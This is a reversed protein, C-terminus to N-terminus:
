AAASSAERMYSLVSGWIYDDERLKNEFNNVLMFDKLAKKTADDFVGTAEGAYFGLRNLISQVERALDGEIKYVNKPDERTLLTMDYIRFIRKLEEIPSPHDDVRVDVYRDTYGEYGGKERVVLLAASQQGRRDGGARQGATLAALLRDILDGEASEFAESMATLVAEGALINGQCCYNKGIIHGAWEYCEKGTFAAVTGKADVIGVQRVERKEDRELLAALTESASLGREM